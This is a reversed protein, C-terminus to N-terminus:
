KQVRDKPNDVNTFHFEEFDIQRLESWACIYLALPSDVIRSVAEPPLQYEAVPVSNVEMKIKDQRM